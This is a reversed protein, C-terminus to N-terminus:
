QWFHKLCKAICLRIVDELESRNVVALIPGKISEEDRQKRCIQIEEKPSRLRTLNISLLLCQRNCHCETKFQHTSTSLDDEPRPIHHHHQEILNKSSDTPQLTKASLDHPIPAHM